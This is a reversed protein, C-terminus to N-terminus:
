AARLAKDLRERNEANDLWATLKQPRFKWARLIEDTAARLEVPGTRDGYRDRLQSEMPCELERRRFLRHFRLSSAALVRALPEAVAVRALNEPLVALALGCYAVSKDAGVVAFETDTPSANAFGHAVLDVDTLLRGMTWVESLWLRGDRPISKWTRRFLDTFPKVAAGPEARLLLGASFLLPHSHRATDTPPASETSM